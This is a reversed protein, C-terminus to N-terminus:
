EPLTSATCLRCAGHDTGLSLSSAAKRRATTGAIQLREMYHSIHAGSRQHWPVHCRGNCLRKNFVPIVALPEAAAMTRLCVAKEVWQLAAVLAVQSHQRQTSKLALQITEPGMGHPNYAGHGLVQVGVRDAAPDALRLALSHNAICLPQGLGSWTSRQTSGVWNGAHWRDRGQATSM